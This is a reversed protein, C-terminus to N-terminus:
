KLKRKTLCFDMVEPPVFQKMRQTDWEFERVLDQNSELKFHVTKNNKVADNIQEFFDKADAPTKSPRFSPMEQFTFSYFFSMGLLGPQMKEKTKFLNTLHKNQGGVSVDYNESDGDVTVTLSQEDDYIYGHKAFKSSANPLEGDDMLNKEQEIYQLSFNTFFPQCRLQIAAQEGYNKPIYLIKADKIEDTFDDAQYNVVWSDKIENNQTAPNEVMKMEEALSVSSTLSLLFMAIVQNHFKDYTTKRKTKLLSLM